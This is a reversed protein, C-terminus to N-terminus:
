IRDLIDFFGIVKTRYLSDAAARHLKDQVTEKGGIQNLLSLVSRRMMAMNEAGRRNRIRCADEKFTVDLVYHLQNEISWHDRITKSILEIDSPALSSLYYRDEVTQEKGKKQRYSQIHIISQMGPFCYEPAIKEVSLIHHIRKEVRQHGESTTVLEDLSSTDSFLMEAVQHLKIQNKKLQFIYNGGQEIIREAISRLCFGADGTVLSNKFTFDVFIKKMAQLEGEEKGENNHTVQQFVSLGYTVDFVSVSHLLRHGKSGYYGQITKGDIAYHRARGLIKRTTYDLCVTKILKRFYTPEMMNMTRRITDHSPTGNHYPFYRQLWKLQSKGFQAMSTYSQCNSLTAIFILFLVEVLPYICM